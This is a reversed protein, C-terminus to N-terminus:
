AAEYSERQFCPVYRGKEGQVLQMCAVPGSPTKQWSGASKAAYGARNTQRLCANGNGDLWVMEGRAVADAVKQRTFHTHHKCRDGPNRHDRAMSAAMICVNRSQYPLSKLAAPRDFKAAPNAIM